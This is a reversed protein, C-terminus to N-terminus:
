DEEEDDDDMFELPDIRFATDQATWITNQDVDGEFLTKTDFGPIFNPIANQIDLEVQDMQPQVSEQGEQMLEEIREQIKNKVGFQIAKWQSLFGDLIFAVLINIIVVATSINFLIFFIWAYPTSVREHADAIVFWNNQIM